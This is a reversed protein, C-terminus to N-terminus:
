PERECLTGVVKKDFILYDRSKSVIWINQELNQASKLSWHIRKTLDLNELLTKERNINVNAM